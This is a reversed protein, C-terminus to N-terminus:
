AASKLEYLHALDYADPDMATEFSKCDFSSYKGATGFFKGVEELDGADSHKFMFGVTKIPREDDGYKEFYKFKSIVETATIEQEGGTSSYKYDDISTFTKSDPADLLAFSLTKNSTGSSPYIGLYKGNWPHTEPDGESQVLFNFYGNGADKAILKAAFSLDTGEVKTTGLYHSYRKGYSKTDSEDDGVHYNGNFFRAEGNHIDMTRKAGLIYEHEAVISTALKYDGIEEMIPIDKPPTPTVDDIQSSNDKNKDKGITITKGFLTITCGSLVLGSLLPLLLLRKKM